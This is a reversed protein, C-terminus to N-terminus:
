GLLGLGQGHTLLLGPCMDTLCVLPPLSDWARLLPRREATHPLLCHAPQNHPAQPLAAPTSCRTKAPACAAAPSHRCNAEERPQPQPQPFLRESFVPAHIRHPSPTNSGTPHTVELCKVLIQSSVFLHGQWEVRVGDAVNESCCFLISTM